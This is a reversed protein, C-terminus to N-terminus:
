LAVVDLEGSHQRAGVRQQRAGPVGDQQEAARQGRQEGDRHADQDARDLAVVGEGQRQRGDAREEHKQLDDIGDVLGDAQVQAVAGRGPEVVAEGFALTRGGPM